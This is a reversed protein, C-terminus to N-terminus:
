QQVSIQGTAEVVVNLEDGRPSEITIRGSEQCQNNNEICSQGNSNRATIHADPEPRKFLIDMTNLCQENIGRTACLSKIKYGRGINTAEVLEGQDYIGNKDVDAFLVYTTPSSIDFHMGYGVSYNSAGFSYVSIGYVQAQRVSLAIDYALNQLLVSGGFRSNNTLTLSTVVVLIGIVVLLEILSFGRNTRLKYSTAQLLYMTPNKRAVPQRSFAVLKSEIAMFFSNFHRVNAIDVRVRM